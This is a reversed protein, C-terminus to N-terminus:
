QFRKKNKLWTEKTDFIAKNIMLIMEKAYKHRNPTFPVPTNM